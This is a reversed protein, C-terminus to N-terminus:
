IRSIAWVSDRNLFQFDHVLFNFLSVMMVLVICLLLYVFEHRGPVLLPEIFYIKRRLVYYKWYFRMWTWINTSCASSDLGALSHVAGEV